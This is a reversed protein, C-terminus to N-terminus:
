KEEGGVDNWLLVVGITISCCSVLFDPKASVAPREFLSFNTMKLTLLLIGTIPFGLMLLFKVLLLRPGATMFLFGISAQNLLVGKGSWCASTSLSIKMKVKVKVKMMKKRVLLQGILEELCLNGM